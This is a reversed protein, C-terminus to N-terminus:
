VRALELSLSSGFVESAVRALRFYFRRRVGCGGGREAFCSCGQREKFLRCAGGSVVCPAETRMSSSAILPEPPCASMSSAHVLRALTSPKVPRQLAVCVFDSILTEVPPNRLRGGSELVSAICTSVSRHKVWIGVMRIASPAVFVCLLCVVSRCALM